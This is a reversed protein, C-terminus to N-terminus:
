FSTRTVKVVKCVLQDGAQLNTPDGLFNFDLVASQAPTLNNTMAMLDGVKRGNVDLEGNVVYTYTAGSHNTITVNSALQPPGFGLINWTTCSTVAVDAMASDAVATGSPAVPPAGASSDAGRTAQKVDEHMWNLFTGVLVL